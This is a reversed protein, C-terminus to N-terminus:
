AEMDGSGSSSDLSICLESSQVLRDCRMLKAEQEANTSAPTMSLASIM